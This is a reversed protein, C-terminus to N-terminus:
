QLSAKCKLFYYYADAIQFYGSDAPHIPDACVEKTKGNKRSNVKITKTIFNNVTDICTNTPVIFIKEDEREKFKEIVREYLDILFKKRDQGGNTGDAWSDQQSNVMPALAVGVKINADYAHISNIMTQINDEIKTGNMPRFTDNIGLQIFIWDPKELTPNQTMYYSFDFNNSTNLFANTSNNFTKTSLYDYSSWGSRGEHKNTGSGKTGVLEINMVDSSFLNVLEGTTKGAEVLSDGIIMVKRTIGDGSNAQVFNFKLDLEAIKNNYNKLDTIELKCAGKYQSSPIHQIKDSFCNGEGHYKRIAVSELDGFIFNNFYTNVEKGIVGYIEPPPVIKLKTTNDDIKGKLYDSMQKISNTLQSTKVAKENSM